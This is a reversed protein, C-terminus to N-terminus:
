VVLWLISRSSSVFNDRGGWDKLGTGLDANRQGAPTAALRQKRKGTHSHYERERISFGISADPVDESWHM